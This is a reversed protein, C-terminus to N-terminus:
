LAGLTRLLVQAYARSLFDNPHNVNNGTMDRFAKRRLLDQHFTTMDAVRVGPRELARLPALYEAQCGLFGKVEPNALTTAVLIYECAPNEASITQMIARTNGIFVEAPVRGSGDNMGFAIVCLDPHQGAGRERATERGWASTKGGVSTNLLVIGGAGRREALGAAMLDFWAPQRPPVGSWASANCGTSISDGFVLLRLPAGSELAAKTRPLGDLGCAPVAGTWGDSHRYSVVIQRLHFYTGEGFRIWGSESHPFCRGPDEAALYYDDYDMAPIASRETLRLRGDELVYDRGPEYVTELTASRVSLIEDPRYLLRMPAVRGDAARVPLLSENLMDNGEWFPALLPNM